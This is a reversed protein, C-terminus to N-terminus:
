PIESEGAEEAGALEESLDEESGTVEGQVDTAAMEAEIGDGQEKEAGNPGASEDTTNQDKLDKEDNEPVAM